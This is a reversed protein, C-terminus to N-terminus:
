PPAGGSWRSAAPWRLAAVQSGPSGGRTNFPCSGVCCGWGAELIVCSLQCLARPSWHGEGWAYEGHRRQNQVGQGSGLICESTRTVLAAVGVKWAWGWRPRGGWFCRKYSLWTSAGLSCINQDVGDHKSYDRSLCVPVTENGSIIWVQLFVVLNGPVLASNVRPSGYVSRFALSPGGVGVRSRVGAGFGRWLPLRCTAPTHCVGWTWCRLCGKQRGCM